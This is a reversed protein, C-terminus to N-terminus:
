EKNEETQNEKEEKQYMGLKEKEFVQLAELDDQVKQKLQEYEENLKQAEEQGLGYIKELKRKAFLENLKTYLSDAPIGPLNVGFLALDRFEKEIKLDKEVEEKRKQVAEFKEKSYKESM